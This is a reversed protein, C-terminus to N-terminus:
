VSGPEKPLNRYAKLWAGKLTLASGLRERKEPDSYIVWFDSREAFAERYKCKVWLEANLDMLPQSHEAPILM